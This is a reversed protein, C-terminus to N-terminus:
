SQIPQTSELLYSPVAYHGVDPDALTPTFVIGGFPKYWAHKTPAIAVKHLRYEKSVGAISSYNVGFILDGSTLAAALSVRFVDTEVFGDASLFVAPQGGLVGDKADNSLQIRRESTLRRMFNLIRMEFSADAVAQAFDLIAAHRDSGRYTSNESLQRGTMEDICVALIVGSGVRAILPGVSM